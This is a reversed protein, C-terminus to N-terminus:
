TCFVLFCVGCVLLCGFACIVVLWGAFLVCNLLILYGLLCWGTVVCCYLRVLGVFLHLILFM